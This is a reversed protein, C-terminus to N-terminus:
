SQTSKVISRLIIECALIIEQESITLPPAIRLCNPAFLFWDTVLGNELCQQIVQRNFSEDDFHVALLLGKGSIRLIRQHKLLDRFLKEKEATSEALKEQVLVRLAAIGAACSVPHGGFTTIHGLVPDHTLKSMITPSGIFAALPMGGGFAKGTVLVDPIVGSQQFAFLTGTRGMGTQIEDMILLTGMENCRQRIAQLLGPDPLLCGAEAQIPEIFVAATRHTILSLDELRNYRLHLIDPLLPRFSQQLEDDGTISLAGQTSGHYSQRFAALQTRGTARKALKMAGEIAESGSNTFYVSSLSDPLHSALLSAMEVQPSLIFEGYVMVHLHRDVQEHIAKTIEPHQHGLSSVSIGAILDIYSKGTQDFLECGKGRVFEIGPPNDSTQAVHRFFRDRLTPSNMRYLYLKDPDNSM